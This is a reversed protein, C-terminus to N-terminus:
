AAVSLKRAIVVLDCSSVCSLEGPMLEVRDKKSFDHGVGEAGRKHPKLLVVVGLLVSFSAACLVKVMSVANAAGGETEKMSDAVM